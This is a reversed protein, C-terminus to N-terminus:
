VRPAPWIQRWHRTLDPETFGGSAIEDVNPHFGVTLPSRVLRVSIEVVDLMGQRPQDVIRLDSRVTRIEQRSAPSQDCAAMKREVLDIAGRDEHDADQMLGHIHRSMQPIPSPLPMGTPRTVFVRSTISRVELRWCEGVQPMALNEPHWAMIQCRCTM